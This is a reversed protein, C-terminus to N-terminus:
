RIDIGGVSTASESLGKVAKHTNIKKRASSSANPSKMMGFSRDEEIFKCGTAIMNKKM